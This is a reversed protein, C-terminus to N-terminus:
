FIAWTIFSTSYREFSPSILNPVFFSLSFLSSFTVYVCPFLNKKYKKELAIRDVLDCKNIVYILQKGEKKVKNEIEINRTKEVFREDLVELIIDSDRIVQNVIKLFNAM